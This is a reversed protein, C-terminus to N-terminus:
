ETRECRQLCRALGREPIEGSVDCSIPSVHVLVVVAFVFETENVPKPQERSVGKVASGFDPDDRFRVARYERWFINHKEALLNAMARCAAVNPLFWFSHQLYP